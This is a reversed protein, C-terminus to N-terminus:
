CQNSLWSKFRYKPKFDPVISKFVAANLLRDSSAFPVNEDVVVPRSATPEWDVGYHGSIGMLFDVVMLHEGPINVRSPTFGRHLVEVVAAAFDDIHTLTRKQNLNGYFVLPKGQRAMALCENVHGAPTPYRDEEGYLEGYRFVHPSIANGSLSCWTKLLNEAQAVAADRLCHPYIESDERIRRGNTNCINTSSFYVLHVQRDKSHIAALHECLASLAQIHQERDLAVDHCFFVMNCEPPLNYHLYDTPKYTIAASSAAAEDTGYGIVKHCSAAMAKALHSGIFTDIGIIISLEYHMIM